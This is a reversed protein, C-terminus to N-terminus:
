RATVTDILQPVLEDLSRITSDAMSFDMVHKPNSDFAISRLGVREAALLGNRSDEVLVCRAPPVELQAVAARLVDEITADDSIDDRTVVAALQPTLEFKELFREVGVRRRAATVALPFDPSLRKIAEMVGDMPAVQAARDAFRESKATGLELASVDLGCQEIILEATRVSSLGISRELAGEPVTADYPKLVEAWAREHLTWSDAVVGDFDFVVARKTTSRPM